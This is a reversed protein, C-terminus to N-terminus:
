RLVRVTISHSVVLGIFIVLWSFALFNFAQSIANLVRGQKLPFLSIFWFMSSLIAYLVVSGSFCGVGVTPTNFALMFALMLQIGVFAECVLAIFVWSSHRGTKALTHVGNAFRADQADFKRVHDTVHDPNADLEFMVTQSLWNHKSTRGQGIFEKIKFDDTAFVNQVAGGAQNQAPWWAINSPDTGNNQAWLM